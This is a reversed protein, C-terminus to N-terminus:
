QFRFLAFFSKDIKSVKTSAGLLTVSNLKTICKIYQFGHRVRQHSEQMLLSLLLDRQRLTQEALSAQQRYRDSQSIHFQLNTNNDALEEKLNSIEKHLLLLTASQDTDFALTRCLAQDGLGYIKLGVWVWLSSGM